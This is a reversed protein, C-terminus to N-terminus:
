QSSHRSLSSEGPAVKEAVLTDYTNTKAGAVVQQATPTGVNDIRPGYDRQQRSIPANSAVPFGQPVRSSPYSPNTRPDIPKRPISNKREMSSGAGSDMAQGRNAELSSVSVDEVPQRQKRAVFGDTASNLGQRQSRSFTDDNVSNLGQTRDNVKLFQAKRENNDSVGDSNSSSLHSRDNGKPYPGDVRRDFAPSADMTRSNGHLVQRNEPQHSYQHPVNRPYSTTVTQTTTSTSTSLQPQYAPPQRRVPTEPEIKRMTAGTPSVHDAPPAQPSSNSPLSQDYTQYGLGQDVIPLSQRPLTRVTYSSVM